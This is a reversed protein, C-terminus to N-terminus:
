LITSADRPRINSPALQSKTSDYDYLCWPCDLLPGLTVVTLTKKLAINPPVSFVSVCRLRM